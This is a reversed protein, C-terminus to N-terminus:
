LLRLACALRRRTRDVCRMTMSPKISGIISQQMETVNMTVNEGL